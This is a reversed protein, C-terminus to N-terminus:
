RRESELVDVGGPRGIFAQHALGIFLGSEVVGVMRGLQMELGSPDPIVAIGCDAIYHGSDTIFPTGGDLRLTPEFGGAALRDLVTEYGFAVIEIPLKTKRGLWDVLKTEDAVIILRNSASAVIKEHLLAGGLGKVLNLTGREIQDAGDITVDIRRQQTFDTLTIGLRHALAATNESTPIGLIRLGAAVRAALAEVAFEATSGSGLGVIMGEEIEEVARLAAARKMADQQLSAM